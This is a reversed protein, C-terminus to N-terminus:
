AAEVPAAAEEEGGKDAFAKLAEDGDSAAAVALGGPVVMRVAAKMVALSATKAKRYEVIAAAERTIRDYLDKIYCDIVARGPESMRLEPHVHKLMKSVYAEFTPTHRRKKPKKSPGGEGEAKPEKPPKPAKPAKLAKPVKPAKPAKTLGNTPKKAAAATKENAKTM